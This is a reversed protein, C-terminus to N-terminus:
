RVDFSEVIDDNGSYEHSINIPATFKNLYYKDPLTRLSTLLFHFIQILLLKNGKILDDQLQLDSSYPFKLIQLIRFSSKFM